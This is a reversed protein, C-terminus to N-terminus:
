GRALTLVAKGRKGLLGLLKFVVTMSGLKNKVVAEAFADLDDNAPFWWADPPRNRDVLVTRRRVFTGYGHPGTAVGFGTEKTGTWATEALTGTFSHNNVMAVGVELRRVLEAGRDANRTWVSGCLGYRSDNALRVAEDADRVRVVPAIPGFTEEAMVAMDHTCGDLVTAEYGCGTGTARGGCLVRAGKAVADAVHAEVIHLQAANQLPGIEASPTPHVRVKQAIRVLRELFADAVAEEVYIREIASCDQGAHHLAYYAIGAATRDLDADALVIAADKGGLEVSCPILAAGAAAAVKRGTAVSGTFVLGDVRADILARGIAGDGVVCRVVDAPLIEACVRALWLGTRPTHESPKMVVANGSLLAPWLAKYFNALPYNWPAIIGIVGRPVAEVVARKGPFDLPSLRVKQTATARECVRIAGEVNDLVFVLEELLFESKPEGLEACAIAAVEDKRELIRRALTRLLDNRESQPRAAWAPQAARCAVVAAVVDDPTNWAVPDLPAGTSPDAAGPPAFPSPADISM